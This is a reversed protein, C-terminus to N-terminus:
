FFIAKREEVGRNLMGQVRAKVEKVKRELEAEEDDASGTFKMPAGFHLRYKVPLPLPFVTPTVPM